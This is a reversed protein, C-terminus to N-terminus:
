LYTKCRPLCLNLGFGETVAIGM